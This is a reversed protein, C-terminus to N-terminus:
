IKSPFMGAAMWLLLTGRVARLSVVYCMVQAEPYDTWGMGERLRRGMAEQARVVPRPAAINKAVVAAPTDMGELKMRPAM